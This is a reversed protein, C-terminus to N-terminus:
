LLSVNAYGIYTIFEIKDNYRPNSEIYKIEVISYM